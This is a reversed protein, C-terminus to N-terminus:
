RYTLGNKDNQSQTIESLIIKELEMWKHAFKMIDNTKIDLYYGMTYTFWLKKIWEKTENPFIIYNNLFPLKCLFDM